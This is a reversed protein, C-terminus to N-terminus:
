CQFSTDFSGPHIIDRKKMEERVKRVTMRDMESSIDNIYTVREAPEMMQRRQNWVMNM